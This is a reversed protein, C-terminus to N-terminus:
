KEKEYMEPFKFILMEIANVAGEKGYYFNAGFRRWGGSGNDTKKVIKWMQKRSDWQPRLIEKKEAM